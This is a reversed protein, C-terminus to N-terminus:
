IMWWREFSSAILSYRFVVCFRLFRSLCISMPSTMWMLNSLNQRIDEKTSKNLSFALEFTFSMPSSGAWVYHMNATYLSIGVMQTGQSVISSIKDKLSFAEQFEQASTITFSDPMHSVVMRNKSSDKDKKSIILSDNNMQDEISTNIVM